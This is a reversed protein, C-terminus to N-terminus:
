WGMGRQRSGWAGSAVVGYVWTASPPPHESCDRRQFGSPSKCTGESPDPSGARAHLRAQSMTTASGQSPKWGPHHGVKGSPMGLPASAALVGAVEVALDGQPPTGMLDMFSRTGFYALITLLACFSTQTYHTRHTKASQAAAQRTWLLFLPRNSHCTSKAM